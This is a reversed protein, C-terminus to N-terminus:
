IQSSLYFHGPRNEPIAPFATFSLIECFHGISIWFLVFNPFIKRLFVTIVLLQHRSLPESTLGVLQM